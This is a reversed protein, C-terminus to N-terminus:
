VIFTLLCSVLNAIIVYKTMVNLEVVIGEKKDYNYIFWEILLVILEFLIFTVLNYLGIYNTVLAAIWIFIQTLINAGIVLLINFIKNWKVFFGFIIFIILEVILTTILNLIMEDKHLNIGFFGNDEVLKIHGDEIYASVEANFAKTTITNSYYADTAVLKSIEDMRLGGDATSFDNISYGEFLKLCVSFTDPYYIVGASWACRGYSYDVVKTGDLIQLEYLCDPPNVLTVSCSKKPGIDAYVVSLNFLIICCCLLFISIKRM